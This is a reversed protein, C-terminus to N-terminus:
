YIDLNKQIHCLKFNLAGDCQEAISHNLGARCSRLLQLRKRSRALSREPTIALLLIGPAWAATDGRWEPVLQIEVPVQVPPPGTQTHVTGAALQRFPSSIEEAHPVAPGAALRAQHWRLPLWWNARNLEGGM